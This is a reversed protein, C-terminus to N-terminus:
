VWFLRQRKNSIWQNTGVRKRKRPNELEVEVVAVEAEVEVVAVEVKSRGSRGWRRGRGTPKGRWCRGTSGWYYGPEVGWNFESEWWRREWWRWQHKWGYLLFPVVFGPLWMRVNQVVAGENHHGM